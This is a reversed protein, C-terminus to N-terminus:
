TSIEASEQWRHRTDAEVEPGYFHQFFRSGCQSDLYSVPLKVEAKFRQYLAYYPKESARNDHTLTFAPLSLYDRIASEIVPAGVELRIVLIRVPGESFVDWGRDPFHRSFVDLGFFDRIHDDYWLRPHEHPFNQLFLDRLETLPQDWDLAERGTYQSFNHFFASVNRDVPNRFPSVIDLDHRARPTHWYKWLERVEGNNYTADFRHCHIVARRSVRLLENRISQSGVKGMQYVFIPM